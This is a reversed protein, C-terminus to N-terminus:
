DIFSIKFCLLKCKIKKEEIKYLNLLLLTNLLIHFLIYYYNSNFKFTMLYNVM